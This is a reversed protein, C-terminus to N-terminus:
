KCNYSLRDIDPFVNSVSLTNQVKLLQLYIFLRRKGEATNIACTSTPGLM